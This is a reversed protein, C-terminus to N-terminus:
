ELGLSRPIKRLTEACHPVGTQTTGEPFLVKTKRELSLQRADKLLQGQYITLMEGVAARSLPLPTPSLSEPRRDAEKRRLKRMQSSPHSPTPSLLFGSKKGQRPTFSVLVQLYMAKEPNLGKRALSPLLSSLTHFSTVERGLPSGQAQSKCYIRNGGRGGHAWM